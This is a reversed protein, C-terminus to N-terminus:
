FITGCADNLRGSRRGQGAVKWQTGRHRKWSCERSRPIDDWATPLLNRVRIKAGMDPVESRDATAAVGARNEAMTKPHRFYKRTNHSSTGPIPLGLEAARQRQTLSRGHYHGAGLSVRNNRRAEEHASLLVRLPVSCGCDDRFIWDAQTAGAVFVGYRRPFSEYFARELTLGFTEGVHGDDLRLRMIGRLDYSLCSGVEALSAFLLTRGTAHIAIIPCLFETPM